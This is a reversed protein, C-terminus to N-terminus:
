HGEEEMSAGSRIRPRCVAAWRPYKGRKAVARFYDLSETSSIGRRNIDEGEADDDDSAFGSDDGNDLGDPVDGDERQANVDGGTIAEAAMLQADIAAEGAASDPDNDVAPVVSVASRVIKTQAGPAMPSTPKLMACGSQHKTLKDCLACYWKIHNLNVGNPLRGKNRWVQDVSLLIKRNEKSLNSSARLKPDIKPIRGERSRHKTM